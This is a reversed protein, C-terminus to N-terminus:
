TSIFHFDESVQMGSTHATDLTSGFMCFVSCKGSAMEWCSCFSRTSRLRGLCWALPWRIRPCTSIIDLLSTPCRSVELKEKSRLRLCRVSYGSVLPASFTRIEVDVKVFFTHSIRRWVSAFPYGGDLWPRQFSVSESFRRAIFGCKGPSNLCSLWRTM